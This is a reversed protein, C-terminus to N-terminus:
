RDVSFTSVCADNALIFMVNCFFEDDLMGPCESHECIITALEVLDDTTVNELEDAKTLLDNYEKCTGRTFWNERICTSRLDFYSITRTETYAYKKMNYDKGAQPRYFHTPTEDTTITCRYLAFRLTYHQVFTCGSQKHMNYLLVVLLCVPTLITITLLHNPM